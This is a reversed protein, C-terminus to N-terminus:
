EGGGLRKLMADIIAVDRDCWGYNNHLADRADIVAKRERKRIRLREVESRLCANEERIEEDANWMRTYIGDEIFPQPIDDQRGGCCTAADHRPEAPVAVPPFGHVDDFPM